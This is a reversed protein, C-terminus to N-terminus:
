TRGGGQLNNRKDYNEPYFMKPTLAEGVVLINKRFNNFNMGQNMLPNRRKKVKLIM